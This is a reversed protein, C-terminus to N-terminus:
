YLCLRPGAPVSISADLAPARPLSLPLNLITVITVAPPAGPFLEPSGPPPRGLFSRATAPVQGPKRGALGEGAQLGAFSPASDEFPASGRSLRKSGTSARCNERSSIRPKINRDRDHMHFLCTRKCKTYIKFPKNMENSKLNHLNILTLFIYSYPTNEQM